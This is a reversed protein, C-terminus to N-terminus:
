ARWRGGPRALRANAEAIARVGAEEQATKAVRGWAFANDCLVVGGVKLNREAWEVYAPYGGKDADVFVLDFPGEGEIDPLRELAPGVHITVQREVGARRFSEAAVAAHRPEYEFTHLVGEPGMGRALCVGSYGALTGLEVVKQAGLARTLVELHLGDMRGVAIEPLGAAAARARIEALVADEPAFVREAWRALELDGQGFGKEM